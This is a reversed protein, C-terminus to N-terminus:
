IDNFATEWLNESSNKEEVSKGGSKVLKGATSKTKAKNALEQLKKNHETVGKNKVSSLDFGKKLNLAEFILTKVRDEPKSTYKMKDAQMKTILINRGDPTTYKETPKFIYNYIEEREKKTGLPIEFIEKEKELIEKASSIFKDNRQKANNAEVKQAEILQKKAELKAEKFFVQAEKSNDELELEESAREVLKKIKEASFSTTEELYAKYILKQNEEEELNLESYDENSAVELYDEERGGNKIFEIFDRATDPLSNKYNEIGEEITYELSKKFYEPDEKTLGEPISLVGEKSYHEAFYLEPNEDDSDEESESSEEPDEQPDEEDGGEIGEESGETKEDDEEEKEEEKINTLKVDQEFEWIDEDLSVNEFSITKNKETM